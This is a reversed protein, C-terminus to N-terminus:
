SQQWDRCISLINQFIPLNFKEATAVVFPPSVSCDVLYERKDGHLRVYLCNSHEHVARVDALKRIRQALSEFEKPTMTDGTGDREATIHVNHYGNEPQNPMTRM